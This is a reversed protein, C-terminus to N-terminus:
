SSLLILSMSKIDVSGNEPEHVETLILIVDTGSLVPSETPEVAIIKMGAKQAKLYEGAGTITGGTGIGAVLIDVTGATDRWIEPGTTKRHVEPNAPNEFQQLIYSNPTTAAIEKCKDVAGKM